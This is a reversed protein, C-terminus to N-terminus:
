SESAPGTDAESGPPSDVEAEPDAVPEGTSGSSPAQYPMKLIVSFVRMAHQLTEETIPKPGQKRSRVTVLAELLDIVTLDLSESLIQGLTRISRPLPKKVYTRVGSATLGARQGVEKLTLGSSDILLQIAEDLDNLAGADADSRETADQEDLDREAM